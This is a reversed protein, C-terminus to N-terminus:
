VDGVNATFRAIQGKHKDHLYAEIAQGAHQYGNRHHWGDTGSASRSTELTVGVYEKATKHHTHHLYVYQYKTAAWENKFRRAMLLPLDKEKAGDNHTTGILNDHYVFAKLHRMNTDFTINPSLRFWTQVTQALYWGSMYDHNSVNHIIHVDAIGMLKEIISVYLDKALLFNDYWMGDTDQQTGSTTAGKPTDTHLIDNGIILVIKDLPYPQSYQIIKDVGEVVRKIAIQSNYTEGTEYESALKGIHVDAPDIVLCFSEKFKERKLVAFKPSYKSMAETMERKLTEISVAKPKVFASIRKSKYWWHKVDEVEINADACEKELVGKEDRYAKLLQEEDPTLRHRNLGRENDTQRKQGSGKGKVFM